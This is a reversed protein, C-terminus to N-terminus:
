PDTTACINSLIKMLSMNHNLSVEALRYFVQQNAQPFPHSGSPNQCAQPTHGHSSWQILGFLVLDQVQNPSTKLILCGLSVTSEKDNCTDRGIALSNSSSPKLPRKWEIIKQLHIKPPIRGSLDKLLDTRRFDLTIIRSKAEQQWKELNWCSMVLPLWPHCRSECEQGTRGQKSNHLWIQIKLMGVLKDIQSKESERFPLKDRNLKQEKSQDTSDQLSPVM